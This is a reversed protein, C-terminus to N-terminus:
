ASSPMRSKQIHSSNLRTSKRDSLLGILMIPWGAHWVLYSGVVLALTFVLITARKMQTPTVLGAQTARTPGLRTSTDTGKVFDYYDNAYNTGIQILLAGVLAALSPVLAFAGGGIALACGVIVPATAAPLTKPRAASLWISVSSSLM